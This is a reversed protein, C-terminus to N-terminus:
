SGPDGYLYDDHRSSVDAAGDEATGVFGWISDSKTLPTQSPRRVRYVEDVAERVLLGLSKGTQESVRELLRRQDEELYLQTRVKRPMYM